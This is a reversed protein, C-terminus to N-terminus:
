AVARVGGHVDLLYDDLAELPAIWAIAPAKRTPASKTGAVLVLRDNLGERRLVVHDNPAIPGSLAVEEGRDPENEAIGVRLHALLLPLRQQVYSQV